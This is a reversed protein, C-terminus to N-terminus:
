VKHQCEQMDFLKDDSTPRILSAKKKPQDVSVFAPVLLLWSHFIFQSVWPYENIYFKRMNDLRDTHQPWIATLVSKVCIHKINGWSSFFVLIGTRVSMCLLCMVDAMIIFYKITWIFIWKWSDFVTHWFMWIIYIYLHTHIHIYQLTYEMDSRCISNVM